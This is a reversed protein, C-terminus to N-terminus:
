WFIDTPNLDPSEASWELEVVGTVHRAKQVPHPMGWGEMAGGCRVSAEDGARYGLWYKESHMYIKCANFLRMGAAVKELFLRSRLTYFIFIQLGQAACCVCFIFSFVIQTQGPTEILMLYGVIWTVGLLSAISFTALTKKLVSMKRTRTLHPTNKWISLVTVAIFICINATLIIGVPVLFSWLLPKSLDLENNENAGALWCHKTDANPPTLDSLSQLVNGWGVILASRMFDEPTFPSVRVLRICLEVALMATLTFTTLLFYHLLVALTACLPQPPDFREYPIFTNSSDGTNSNSDKLVTYEMTAIFIIYFILMATCLSLLIWSKKEKKRFRAYLLFVVTVALGVVSLVCGTTSVINLEPSTINEKFSMLVAFNTTHNCSCRLPLTENVSSKECGTTNWESKDYDWYVCAYQVLIYSPDSTQSFSFEVNAHIGNSINASIVRKRYTLDRKHSSKFLNDNQYLVFGVVIDNDASEAPKIFIQVDATENPMFESTNNDVIVRNPILADDGPLSPDELKGSLPPFREAANVQVEDDKFETENASLIQSVTAIASQGVDEIADSVNLLRNVIRIANTIDEAQLSQPESTLIQTTVAVDKANETDIQTQELYQACVDM